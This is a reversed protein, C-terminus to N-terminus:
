PSEPPLAATGPASPPTPTAAELLARHRAEEERKGWGAYLDVLGALAKRTPEAQAGRAASLRPYSAVLLREAEEYRGQGALAMGLISENLAIRWHREPFSQRLIALAELAKAEARGHEGRANLLEAVKYLTFAVSPHREGFRKRKIALAEEYCAEAEGHRGQSALWLGKNGLVGAVETHENGGIRRWIAISQDFLEEVKQDRGLYQQLIALDNLALARETEDELGGTEHLSLVRRFLAEAEDFRGQELKVSAMQRLTEAQVPDDERSLQRHIALAQGLLVEGDGLRGQMVLAHSLDQLSGAVALSREGHLRRRIELAQRQLRAAPGFLGLKLYARGMTQMLTARVEPQGALETEIRLAGQDLLERATVTEGVSADPDAVQFLGVLFDSVRRAAEAEQNARAAERATRRVQLAMAAVFILVLSAFTALLRRRARFRILALRNEEAEREARLADALSQRRPELRRLRDAVESASQLRKQPDGDVAAAIDGRLLEDGIEREWGPALARSLDGVTLQFFLVGLAYIDSQITPPKGELLEPALYLRTGGGPSNDSGPLVETFGALTIGRAHVREPDTLLGIGFDTLRARLAGERDTSILVNSPKIDKHLVGVSHAAALATAVQAVIELRSELSLRASGGQEEIWAGLDTGSYELELFFPAEKFNWDLVRGIDDREGLTDRLIRFLTVERMLARLRLADYCFKFVRHDATKEHRALWVEGFGGEGLKRELRWNHRWPVELGAAPRWGLTAEEGAPVARRAKATDSPAGLPAFGPMGVEFVEAPEGIGQFLYPGHALWHPRAGSAGSLDGAASRRALDFAAHTLLTQRPGALSALRAVTHKALGEVELPKAGQAIEEPANERVFVEGLHIGARAGLRVRLREGLDAVERHYALAYSVAQIPRPFLLLFGDTKDIERGEFRSLLSRAVHDHSALVKQAREDGLEVILRTSDVLDILLLTTVTAVAGSPPVSGPFPLVTGSM